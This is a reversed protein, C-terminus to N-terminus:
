GHFPAEFGAPVSVTIGTTGAGNNLATELVGFGGANDVDGGNVAGHLESDGTFQTDTAIIVNFSDASGGNEVPAFIAWIEATQQLARVIKSYLSDSDEYDTGGATLGEKTITLVSLQRTGFQTSPSAKLYNATVVTGIVSPM